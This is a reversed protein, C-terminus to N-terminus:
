GLIEEKKEKEQGKSSLFHGYRIDTGKLFINKEEPIHLFVFFQGFEPQLFADVGAL